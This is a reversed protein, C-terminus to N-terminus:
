KAQRHYHIVVNLTTENLLGYSDLTFLAKAIPIIEEGTGLLTQLVAENLLRKEKLLAFLQMTKYISVTDQHTQHLTSHSM